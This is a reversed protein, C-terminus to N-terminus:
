SLTGQRVHLTKEPEFPLDAARPNAIFVQGKERVRDGIRRRRTEDLEAFVDDLLLIPPSGQKAELLSASALKLSLAVSRKQGQSGFDRAPRGALDIALDERHPGALTQGTEREAGRLSLLKRRFAAKLEAEEEAPSVSGALRLSLEEGADSIFRYNEAALPVLEALARRRLLTIRAGYEVLPGDYADLVDSGYRSPAEALGEDGTESDSGEEGVAELAEGAPGPGGGRRGGMQKLLSNRQKLAGNYHRLAELYDRSFQCLLVDLYRRRLQPGGRVLDLDEPSFAVVSFNGLLDSLRKSERGDVKVRKHGTESYQVSQAHPLGGIEGTLRLVFASAGWRILEKDKRTRQSHALCGYHIAELLNTKGHGNPGTLLNLGPSFEAEQEAFNRFHLLSLASLRM